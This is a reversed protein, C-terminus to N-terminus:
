RGGEVRLTLSAEWGTLGSEAGERVVVHGVRGRAAPSLVVRRGFRRGALRLDLAAGVGSVWGQGVGDASRFVRAEAEPVLVARAGLPVRAAGGALFLQQSPSGTAGDLASADLLLIGNERHNVAGYVLASGRLGVPFAYSVVGEFRNGARFLNAGDVADDGFRQFGAVLSLTGADGVEGDLAVRVRVRDGPRYLLAQGDLPEFDRGARYGGAVGVGWRGARVALAVDGGVGGGTGWSAISFPLLEAAVVGAVAAEALTLETAGTPLSAGATLVVRDPGLAFSLGVETDTPGSLTAEGGDPGVVTGEAFAGSVDVAVVSGLGLSVAFPASFLRAEAAGASQPEAFTYSQFRVGAGAAVPQAAVTHPPAAAAFLVLALLGGRRAPLGRRTPTRM